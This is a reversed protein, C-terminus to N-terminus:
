FPVEYFDKDNPNDYYYHYKIEDNELFDKIEKVFSIEDPDKELDELGHEIYPRACVCIWGLKKVRNGKKIYMVIDEWSTKETFGYIGWWYNLHMIDVYIVNKGMKDNKKITNNYRLKRINSILSNVSGM